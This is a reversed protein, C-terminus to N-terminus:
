SLSYARRDTVAVAKIRGNERVVQQQKIALDITYRMITDVQKGLRAFDFVRALYRVLEEEEISFHTNIAETLAIMIEEPAIDEIKRKEINNARYHQLPHAAYYFIQNHNVTPLNMEGAVENLLKDLRAGMRSIGWAQLVKKFLTSKSVPAEVEIVKQMQEKLTNRHMNEFISDSNTVAMLNLAIAIYPQQLSQSPSTLPAGAIESIAAFETKPQVEPMVEEVEPQEKLHNIRQVIAEIIQAANEHWDLSWIRHINWGLGKLVSPMVLERDNSTKANYYYYGDIVIGLIFRHENNPHVIGVDIKFGSTGINCKVQLGKDVLSRSVFESLQQRSREKMDNDPQLALQGKEAFNLFAKLGAVGEAATRSLDIQEAKLTAFVHMAYRARTVAVNLRRWGGNSNLPGFHMSLKGTEDPGYGISFLIIDREDGQVNELNKVFLPEEAENAMTELKQNRAFLQELMEEILTQQAQSFTVVGVSLHKQQENEFHRRVFDVIAEAEFKNTRTKGKDYVGPVHHYRVKRQLDDASPFTLLKNEYYSANSFAILSEHKSRYHRLLYKSPMSLSLCDDLISELDEIEINEEDLKTTTFFSTPPMQKPDGVIIAQKARALSSIAECTPLQSAEDFILLDFHNTNVDFYQAVSIPSMLMCPALKPLLNPIQDFLKRISVGRGKSRIAKQLIGPESSQIADISSHPLQSALKGRMEQITLSKYAAAIQKYQEIKSEFLNAHFLSLSENRSILQRSISLHVTYNFYDSVDHPLFCRNEYAAIMWDLQQAKGAMVIQQYNMWNRLRPLHDLISSLQEGSKKMWDAGELFQYGSIQNLQKEHKVFAEHSQQLSAISDANSRLLEDSYHIGKNLLSQMWKGYAKYDFDILKNAIQRIANARLEVEAVPTEEEKYLIQLATILEDYRGQHMRKKSDQMQHIHSFFETVEVDNTLANIRHANLQKKVARKKLWKPLFWSHNAQNWKAELLHIDINLVSRNHVSLITNLAQQHQNLNATWEEFIQVHRDQALYSAFTLPTDPLLKLTQLMMQFHDAEKKSSVQFPFHLKQVVENQQAEMAAVVSLTSEIETRIEDSLSATYQNFRLASLPNQSPHIILGIISEFQPLWDNWQQWLMPTLKDLVNEPIFNKSFDRGRYNEFSTLSHYLSWGFPQVKHLLNVYDSIAKKAVDLRKSEESFNAVRGQKLTELSLALQNLVDSKKSKNSHLELTFPELGIQKLRKYVVDLAAKKAAVFLVRKGRYLADAIINTITQSKGTGPPGHLIFSTGQQAALVAEMQSVDTAIPLTLTGSQISELDNIEPESHQAFALRGEMLSRVMDSEVIKDQYVVIDNWLILKSFSFNGLVLQDKVDWGPMQMIARRVIGMVRAVDVGKEDQPLQELGSLNMEYEQRLFELLTINVMTEEERSRLTFKSNVSRRSIEVPILLIPALRPTTPTKRDYWQLLGLGLFLTSSGNEEIAQRANKHMFSLINDLDRQHFYTLLRNYKLEDNAYQFEQSSIHLPAAYLNYKGVYEAASHPQISFSKGDSLVDELATIDIDVLQLMNKGFRLNLLSNRLSLDLLKREWLKQKTTPQKKANLLEDSYIEGLEFRDEITRAAQKEIEEIDLTATETNLLPLPRIFVSRATKIDISVLFNEKEVLQAEGRQLAESFTLDSGRCMTTAEVVAIERIGRSMRKTIATKDDNVVEHFKDNRLWCGVFAHCEVIIIIPHLDAAELCAAFLLSIDICNAFRERQITNLLRLRQGIKEYGPALSSYILQENQIATFLASMIQLVREPDDRQYGDFTPSLKQAELLQVAHRKLHYVFPHNPTVFSAIFQPLINFGGFHELPQVEVRFSETACVNDGNLLRISIEAPETESLSNFYNRNIKLKDLPIKVTTHAAIAALRFSFPEICPVDSVIQVELSEITNESDNEVAVCHIFRINNLYFGINLFPFAEKHIKLTNTLEM